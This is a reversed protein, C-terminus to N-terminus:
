LGNILGNEVGGGPRYGPINITIPIEGIGVVPGSAAATGARLGASASHANLNVTRRSSKVLVPRSSRTITRGSRLDSVRVVVLFPGHSVSMSYRGRVPTAVAAVTANRLSVAEVNVLVSRSSAPLGTLRGLLSSHNSSGWASSAVAALLAMLGLATAAVATRRAFASRAPRGAATGRNPSPGYALSRDSVARAAVM